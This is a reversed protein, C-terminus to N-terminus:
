LVSLGSQGCLINELYFFRRYYEEGGQNCSRRKIYRVLAHKGFIEVFVQKAFLECDLEVPIDLNKFRKTVKETDHIAKLPKELKKDKGSGNKQMFHRFEHAFVWVIHDIGDDLVRKSIWILYKCGPLDMVEKVRAPAGIKQKGCHWFSASQLFEERVAAVAEERYDNSELFLWPQPGVFASIAAVQEFYPVVKNKRPHSEPFITLM